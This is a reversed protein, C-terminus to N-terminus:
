MYHNYVIHFLNKSLVFLNFNCSLFSYLNNNFTKWPYTITQFYQVFYKNGFKGNGKFTQDLINKVKSVCNTITNNFTNYEKRDPSSKFQRKLIIIRWITTNYIRQNWKHLGKWQLYTGCLNYAEVPLIGNFSFRGYCGTLLYKAVYM